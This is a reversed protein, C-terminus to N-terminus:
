MEHGIIKPILSEGVEREEFKKAKNREDEGDEVEDNINRFASDIM